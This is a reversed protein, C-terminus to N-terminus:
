SQHFGSACRFTLSGAPLQQVAGRRSLVEVHQQGVGFTEVFLAPSALREGIGVASNLLPWPVTDGPEPSRAQEEFQSAFFVRELVRLLAHPKRWLKREPM